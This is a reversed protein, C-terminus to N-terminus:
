SQAHNLNSQNFGAQLSPGVQTISRNTYFSREVKPRVILGGNFVQKFELLTIENIEGLELRSMFKGREIRKSIQVLGTGDFFLGKLRRRNKSFFLYVHGQNIDQKMIEKTFYYLKEFGCRMDIMDKYIFVRLNKTEFLM